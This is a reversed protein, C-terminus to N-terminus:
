PRISHANTKSTWRGTVPQEPPPPVSLEERAIEHGLYPRVALYMLDHVFSEAAATGSSRALERQLLEYISGIVTLATEASVSDPDALESRGADVIEAFMQLAMDRHTRALDTAGDMMTTSFRIYSSNDRVFRAAAYGAARLGDRWLAEAEYASFVVRRFREVGEDVVALVCNEKDAFHRDFDARSVGAREILAAVTTAEYGRELVLEITATALLRYEPSFAAGPRAGANPEAM